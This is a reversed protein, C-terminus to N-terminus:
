HGGVLSGNPIGDVAQSGLERVRMSHVVAMISYLELSALLSSVHAEEERCTVKDGPSRFLM